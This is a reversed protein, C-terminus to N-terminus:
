ARRSLPEAVCFENGEPDEMVTWIYPDDFGEPDRRTVLARAGLAELRAVEGEIASAPQLDLHVRNKVSKGEPVAMFYVTPGRHSPDSIAIEDFAEWTRDIDYSLVESWFRAQALPDESDVTICLIETTV